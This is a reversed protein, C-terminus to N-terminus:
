LNTIRQMSGDPAYGLAQVAWQTNSFKMELYNIVIDIKDKSDYIAKIQESDLASDSPFPLTRKPASDYVFLLRNGQPGIYKAPAIVTLLDISLHRLSITFYIPLYYKGIVLDDEAISDNKVVPIFAEIFEAADYASEAL